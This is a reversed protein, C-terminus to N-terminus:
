GNNKELEENLQDFNELKYYFYVYLYGGTQTVESYKFNSNFRLNNKNMKRVLEKYTKARLFSVTLHQNGTNIM